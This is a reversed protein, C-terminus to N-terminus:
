LALGYPRTAVDSAIKAIRVELHRTVRRYSPRVM